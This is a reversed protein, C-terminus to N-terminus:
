EYRLARLPDVRLARRAPLLASAAVTILFVGVAGLYTVPDLNSIGFLEQRLLQSLAAASAVGAALGVAVPAALRRLVVRLVHGPKAGLAMRIGIERTRQSVSYAVVGVIGLCALLHAMAGLATVAVASYQAGQLKRQFGNKLLDVEPFTDADLARTAAAASAALDEPRAATRAMVFLLPLDQPEIPLYAEVSDSDELRVQRASGAVGVITLDGGGINFMKGLPDQGPFARAMSESVVVAGKEGPRLNRGRVLPIKMTRLFEPDIHNLQVNLTRGEYDIGTSISVRGLPPSLALSVSQVGPMARLRATLADLYARARAPSYGHRALGPDIAIVQRYDFGPDTSIAHSLARGLLGAVILLVCSAAVQAGILLQRMVGTRHRRRAIELAPVLGFLAAATLGAAVAFLAIRWDPAPNMWAPAESVLMLSRLVVYGLGLGAASGLLGLLLSETFLQRVVRGSGAGVALRISIERERAVGRALLLSGLNACAVALILLVLAGVLAFIPFMQNRGEAGTGSRNGIMLGTAYGGPDSPLTEDKWIATPYENRLEKALSALEQEAARPNMGPALRGWMQVGGAAGLDTLLRSGASFYPQQRLPAWFAPVAMNLGSFDAPAVGVVTAPKGNVEMKAGIALPDGGFHREWFGRSLVVVPASGAAGDLAGSLMRGRGGAVGLEHFFDPSVFHAEVPKAEGEIAVRTTNLGLVTSLTKSNRQFFEVEAYPLAYAYGQPARRHFRLLTGPDRVNLPRLVMLDFFGFVAVNAGIGIALMLVAALTFWPSRALVRAAYRVDQGLRDLWMWGWAERAEERLYLANGFHSRGERAAMERHHEMEQALEEEMRRRNLVYRLRRIWEAM